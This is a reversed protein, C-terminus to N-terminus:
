KASIYNKFEDFSMRELSTIGLAAIKVVYLGDEGVAKKDHIIYPMLEDVDIDADMSFGTMFFLRKIAMFDDEKMEGAARAANAMVAIGKAVAVGHSVAYGSSAEIAHAVTHGLNLVNRIANGREDASVIDAKYKICAAVMEEFKHKSRCVYNPIFAGELCAYKLAEGFGNIMEQRPLTSLIDPDAIVLRPQHFIGVQNKGQPLNVGTKGGISSDIMALLTTPIQVIQIGRMYTAACFGALDGVVGGGLAVVCDGRCIRADAMAQLIEFYVPLTKSEEGARIVYVATSQLGYECKLASKVNNLYYKAVNDDTIIMFRSASTASKILEAVEYLAGNKVVVDYPAGCKVKIVKDM